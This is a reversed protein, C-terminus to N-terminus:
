KVEANNLKERESEDLYLKQFIEMDWGPFCTSGKKNGNKLKGKTYKEIGIQNFDSDYYIWEGHKDDNRWNGYSKIYGYWNFNIEVGHKLGNKYDILKKIRKQPYYYCIRGDLVLDQDKAYGYGLKYKIDGNPYYAELRYLTNSLVYQAKNIKELRLSDTILFYEYKNFYDSTDTIEVILSDSSQHWIGKYYKEAYEHIPTFHATSDPFLRLFYGHTFGCSMTWYKGSLDKQSFSSIPLIVILIFILFRKIMDNPYDTQM